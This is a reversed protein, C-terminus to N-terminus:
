DAPSSGRAGQHAFSVILHGAPLVSSRTLLCQSVIVGPVLYHAFWAYDAALLNRPQNIKFYARQFGLAASALMSIFSLIELFSQFVFDSPAESCLIVSIRALRHHQSISGRDNWSHTALQTFASAVDLRPVEQAGGQCQLEPKRISPAQEGELFFIPLLCM